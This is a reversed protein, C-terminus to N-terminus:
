ARAEEGREARGTTKASTSTANPRRPANRVASPSASGYWMSEAFTSASWGSPSKSHSVAPVSYSGALGRPSGTFVM